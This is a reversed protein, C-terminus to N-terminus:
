GSRPSRGPSSRCADRDGPGAATRRVLKIGSGTLTVTGPAPVEIEVGAPESSGTSFCRQPDPLDTQATRPEAPPPPPPPRAPNARPSARLRRHGPDLTAGLCHPQARPRATSTSPASLPTPSAPTSLPRAPQQRFDGTAADVFLPPQPRTAPRGAALHHDAECRRGPATAFNSNAITVHAEAKEENAREVAIDAANASRAIM